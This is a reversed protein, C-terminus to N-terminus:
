AFSWTSLCAQWYTLRNWLAHPSIQVNGESTLVRARLWPMQRIFHVIRRTFNSARAMWGECITERFAITDDVLLMSQVELLPGSSSNKSIAIESSIWSSYLPVSASSCVRVGTYIYPHHPNSLLATWIWGFVGEVTCWERWAWIYNM